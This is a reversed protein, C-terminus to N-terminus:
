VSSFREAEVEGRRRGGPCADAGEGVPTRRRSGKVRLGSSTGREKGQGAGDPSAANIRKEEKEQYYPTSYGALFYPTIHSHARWDYDKKRQMLINNSASNIAAHHGAPRVGDMGM